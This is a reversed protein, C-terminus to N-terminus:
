EMTEGPRNYEYIYFLCVMHFGADAYMKSQEGSTCYIGAYKKNAIAADKIKKIADHLEPAM